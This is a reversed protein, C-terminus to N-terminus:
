KRDTLGMAYTILILSGLLLIFAVPLFYYTLSIVMALLFGFLSLLVLFCGWIGKM